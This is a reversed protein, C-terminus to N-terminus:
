KKLDFIKSMLAWKEGEVSGPIPQQFYDMLSEWEQVRPNGADKEAKKAFSFTQDVEMIMMLRNEFRYIEMSVIGAEIISFKIDPWVKTHWDVYAAIKTADPVLDLAFVHRKM